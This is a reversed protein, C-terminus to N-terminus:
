RRSSTECSEVTCQESVGLVALNPAMGVLIFPLPTPPLPCGPTPDLSFGGGGGGGVQVPGGGRTWESVKLLLANSSKEEISKKVRTPNTVLHDDGVIQCKGELATTIAKWNDWDDQEYPDEITIVGYHEVFGKYMELMEASCPVFPLPPLGPLVAHLTTSIMSDWFIGYCFAICVLQYDHDVSCACAYGM